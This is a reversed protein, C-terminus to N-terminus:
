VEGDEVEVAWRGQTLSMLAPQQFEEVLKLQSDVHGEISGAGVEEPAGSEAM